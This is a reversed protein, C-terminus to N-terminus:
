PHNGKELFSRKKERKHEGPVEKKRRQEIPVGQSSHIKNEGKPDSGKEKREKTNDEAECYNGYEEGKKV